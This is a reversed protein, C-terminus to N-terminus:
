PLVVSSGSPVLWYSVHWWHAERSHASPPKTAKHSDDVRSSLYDKVDGKLLVNLRSCDLWVFAFGSFRGWVFLFIVDDRYKIICKVVILGQRNSKSTFSNIQLWFRILCAISAFSSLFINGIWIGKLVAYPICCFGCIAFWVGHPAVFMIIGSNKVRYLQLLM